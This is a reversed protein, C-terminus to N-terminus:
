FLRSLDNYLALMMVGVVLTVGIKLGVMQIKESLPKGRVLEVLYYLLHGGDLVPIPLLNLVGLSVSLMALFYLFNELGSQLSAGAVKAITIPGSLNKVSVLGAVMKWLSEFTMSTLSWTTDAAHAMASLPNYQLNRLLDEPWSVSQVGAGIYGIQRGQHERSGPVLELSMRRGARELEVQLSNGANERIMQVWAMWDAVEVGNASLILDGSELGAQEAAGGSALEGIRAPIVPSFPEIGLAKVPDPMDDGVLWDRVQLQKETVAGVPLRGPEGSRVQVAINRSEGIASILEMNVQQWGSTAEGDISVVEDGPRLGAVAAPSDAIVRGVQPVVTKIGLMYMLWLAILALFFNALPGAAVIGIRSLVPKDNFSEHRQEEPVPAEREDLMKVYGGLPIAAVVFETGLKDTWRWLPKGFGVSFRLVKVGCRRAMWFHGYEHISVLIGLTVVFALVTQLTGM